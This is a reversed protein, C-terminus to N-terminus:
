KDHQKKREAYCETLWRLSKRRLNKEVTEYADPARSWEWAM